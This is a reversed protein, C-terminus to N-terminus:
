DIAQLVSVDLTPTEKCFTSSRELKSEVRTAARPAVFREDNDDTGDAPVAVPVENTRKAAAMQGADTVPATTSSGSRPLRRQVGVGAGGASRTVSDRKPDGRAFKGYPSRPSSAVATRNSSSSSRDPAAGVAGFPQLPSALKATRRLHLTTPFSVPRQKNGAAAAATTSTAGNPQKAFPGAAPRAVSAAVGASKGSSNSKGAGMADKSRASVFSRRVVALRNFAGDAAAVADRPSSTASNASSSLRGNTTSRTTSSRSVAAPPSLASGVGAPATTSTPALGFATPKRLRSVAAAATPKLTAATAAARQQQLQLAKATKAANNARVAASYAHLSEQSATSKNSRVSSHMSGGLSDVSLDVESGAADATLLQLTATAASRACRGNTPAVPQQGGPSSTLSDRSLTTPAPRAPAVARKNNALRSMCTSSDGSSRNTRDGIPEVIAAPHARPRGNGVAAAGGAAATTANATGNRQSRTADLHRPAPRAGNNSESQTRRHGIAAAPNSPQVVVHSRAISSTPILDPVPAFTSPAHHPRTRGAGSSHRETSRSEHQTSSPRSHGIHNHTGRLHLSTPREPQPPHPAVATHTAAPPRHEVRHRLLSDQARKTQAQIALKVAHLDHHRNTGSGAPLPHPVSGSSLSQYM